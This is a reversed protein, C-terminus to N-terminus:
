AFLSGLKALGGARGLAGGILNAGGLIAGLANESAQSQAQANTNNASTIANTANNTLNVFGQGLGTQVNAGQGLISARANGEGTDLGSLASGYGQSANAQLGLGQAQGALGQQYSQAANGLNSVYQQYGQDALGTATKLIDSTANGGALGGRAAASRQVAGLAQDMSYQYGPSAQFASTAAQSGAAGNAGTANLYAQYANSGGQTLPQYLSGLQGLYNQTQGYQNAVDGKATDYGASSYGFAGPSTGDGLLYNIAQGGSTLLANGGQQLGTNIASLNQKRATSYASGDLADFIGM